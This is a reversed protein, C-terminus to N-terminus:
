EGATPVYQPELVIDIVTNAEPKEIVVALMRTGRNSNERRSPPSTSAVHFKAHEPRDIKVRLRKGSQRLVAENGRLEVNARTVMGWRIPGSAGDVRDVVRVSRNRSMEVTRIVRKAQGSYADSMDVVGVTRDPTARFESVHCIARPNQNKGDIVLTNHSQNTLRYYQWRRKGFYGPMNYNDSGLDIAWRVHDADLVFSGIDLHGHNTGNDGAKFAVYLAGPDDWSSRAVVIDQRGRFLRHRPLEAETPRTGRPDFWIIELASWRGRMGRGALRREIRQRHWWAFVPQDYTRALYFMSAALSSREHADAYNFYLDTPGITDIRFFGTRDFGPTRHFGFDHGLATQLAALTICTYETGYQWYGPGEPYAGDPRYVSLGRPMSAVAFRIVEAAVDPDTEAIALAGLIMGGNCVQNWNNDGRTWWKRSRYVSLGPKLGKDILAERITSRQSETMVDFLWDYGFALAATMEATDLFHSPNWDKFRAATEMERVAAEALRRDGSLRYALAMATVRSLCKRSQALLRKGDPIEYRVRPQSVMARAGARQVQVLRELLPEKSAMQEIRRLAETTLLLRPHQPRLGSLPDDSEAGLLGRVSCSALLLLAASVGCCTLARRSDFM